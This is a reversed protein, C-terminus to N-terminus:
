TQLLSDFHTRFALQLGDRVAISQLLEGVQSAVVRAHVRGNVQALVVEVSHGLFNAQTLTDGSYRYQAVEHVEFVWHWLPALQPM